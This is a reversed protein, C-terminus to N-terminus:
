LNPNRSKTKTEENPFLNKKKQINEEEQEENFAKNRNMMLPEQKVDEEDFNLNEQNLKRRRKM